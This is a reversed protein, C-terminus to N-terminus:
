LRRLNLTVGGHRLELVAGGVHIAAKRFQEPHPYAEGIRLERGAEHLAKGRDAGMPRSLRTWSRSKSRGPQRADLIETAQRLRAVDVLTRLQQPAREIERGGDGLRVM